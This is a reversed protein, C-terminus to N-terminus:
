HCSCALQAEAVAATGFPTMFAGAVEVVGSGLGGFTALGEGIGHGLAYQPATKMLGKGLAKVGKTAATKEAVIDRTEQYTSRVDSNFSPVFQQTNGIIAIFGLVSGYRQYLYQEVCPDNVGPLPTESQQTSLGNASAQSPAGVGGM